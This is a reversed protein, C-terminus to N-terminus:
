FRFPPKTPIFYALIAAMMVCTTATTAAIEMHTKKTTMAMCKRLFYQYPSNGIIWRM